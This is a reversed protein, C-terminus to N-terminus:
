AYNSAWACHASWRNTSRAWPKCVRRTHNGRDCKFHRPPM